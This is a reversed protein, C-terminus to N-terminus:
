TSGFILSLLNRTTDRPGPTCSSLQITSVTSVQMFQSPDQRFSIVRSSNKVPVLAHHYVAFYKLYRTASDVAMELLLSSGDSTTSWKISKHPLSIFHGLSSPFTYYNSSIKKIAAKWSEQNAQLPWQFPFKHRDSTESEATLIRKDITCGNCLVMCSRHIVKKHLCFINLLVLDGGSFHCSFESMLSANGIQIPHM